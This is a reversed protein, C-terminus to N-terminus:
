AVTENIEKLSVLVAELSNQRNEYDLILMSKMIKDLESAIGDPIIIAGTTLEEIKVPILNPIATKILFDKRQESTTSEEYMNQSDATYALGFLANNLKEQRLGTFVEYLLLGISFIDASKMIEFDPDEGGLLGVMGEPSTVTMNGMPRFYPYLQPTGNQKGSGFDTLKCKIKGSNSKYLINPAYIDRHCVELNHCDIVGGIIQIAISLRQKLTISADALLSEISGDMKEMVYYPSLKETKEHVGQERFNTLANVVRPSSELVKLLVPENKFKEYRVQNFHENNIEKTYLKLVVGDPNATYTHASKSLGEGLFSEIIFEDITEGSNLRTVRKQTQAM